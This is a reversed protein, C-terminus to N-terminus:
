KKLIYDMALEYGAFGLGAIQGTCVPATVSVHRFDERKQINSIHVEVVPVRVSELADRIAISYHTFAGPNIVIGDTGNDCAQQIRDIIAGEHNSQFLELQVGDREAKKRLREELAAYTGTGYQAPDRRGLFNLNPGNIVLIKM